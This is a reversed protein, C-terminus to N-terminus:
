LVKSLFDKVRENKPNEFFEEPPAQEVIRGDAM